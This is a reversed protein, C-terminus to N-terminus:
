ERIPAMGARSWSKTGRHPPSSRRYQQALWARKPAIAQCEAVARSEFNAIEQHHADITLGMTTLMYLVAFGDLGRCYMVLVPRRLDDGVGTM